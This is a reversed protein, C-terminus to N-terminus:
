DPDVAPDGCRDLLDSACPGGSHPGRASAPQRAVRTQRHTAPHFQPTLSRPRPPHPPLRRNIPEGLPVGLDAIFTELRTTADDIDTADGKFEFEVFDGAGDLHDFVIEVDPLTWTERTKDVTVLPRFDLAEILRRVAEVDGVSSDYEDAHTKVLADVPHWRKFNEGVARAPPNGADHDPRQGEDSSM